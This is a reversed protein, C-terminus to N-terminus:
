RHIILWCWFSLCVSLLAVRANAEASTLRRQTVPPEARELEPEVEVGVCVSLDGLLVFLGSEADVLRAVLVFVALASSAGTLPGAPLVDAHATFCCETGVCDAALASASLVSASLVSASWIRGVKVIFLYKFTDLVFTGWFRKM